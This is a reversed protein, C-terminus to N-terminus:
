RAIDRNGGIGLYGVSIRGVVFGGLLGRKMKLRLMKSAREKLRDFDRRCLGVDKREEM